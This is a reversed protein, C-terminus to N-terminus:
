ARVKGERGRVLEVVRRTGEVILGHEAQHIREQLEGLEKCGEIGVEESVIPEGLDVERIVYHIMIGTKTRQGEQFEKWAREICGAGVLDGPLAPHLNIIPIHAESMRDLFSPTLIRMWGACVILQPSDQLVIDALASDFRNRAESSQPNSPDDPYSNKFPLWSHHTTPINATSARTLGYANKRDSIVRIIQTNPLSPTTSTSADILAQLNTGSGSILVTIPTPPPIAM